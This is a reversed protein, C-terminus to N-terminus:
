LWDTLRDATKGGTIIVFKIWWSRNSFGKSTALANKDQIKKKLCVDLLFSGSAPGKELKKGRRAKASRQREQTDSHFPPGTWTAAMRHLLEAMELRCPRSLDVEQKGKRKKRKM